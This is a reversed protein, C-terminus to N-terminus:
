TANDFFLHVIGSYRAIKPLYDKNGLVGNETLLWNETPYPKYTRQKVADHLLEPLDVPFIGIRGAADATINDRRCAVLGGGSHQWRVTNISFPCHPMSDLARTMRNDASWLSTASLVGVPVKRAFTAM